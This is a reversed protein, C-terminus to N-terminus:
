SCRAAKRRRSPPAGVERARDGGPAGRRPRAVGGDRQRYRAALSPVHRRDASRPHPRAARWGPGQLHQHDSPVDEPPHNRHAAGLRQNGPEVEILTELITRMDRISVSERLLNRMVKLVEGLSLLNPVLDDVLKPTGKSFVDFLHQLEGRGLLQYSNNRIIEGLHTAIVTAHDVVTYGLAEALERDRQPIWRAPTGFAPDTTMEGDIEPAVGSANM